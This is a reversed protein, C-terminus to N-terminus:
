PSLAAILAAVNGPNGEDPSLLFNADPHDEFDLRGASIFLTGDPLPIKEINGASYQHILNGDSDFILETNTTYPLGVLTKGNATFTDQETVHISIRTLASNQDFYLIQTGSVVSYIEVPFPLVDTFVDDATFDLPLKIPTDATASSPAALVLGATLVGGFAVWMRGLKRRLNPNM